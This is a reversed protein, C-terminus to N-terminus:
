FIGKKYPNKSVGGGIAEATEFSGPFSCSEILLHPSINKKSVGFLQPSISNQFNFLDSKNKPFNINKAEAHGSGTLQQIPNQLVIM